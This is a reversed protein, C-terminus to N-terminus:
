SSPASVGSQFKSATTKKAESPKNDANDVVDTQKGKSVAQAPKQESAAVVSSPKKSASLNHQSFDDKEASAKIVQIKASSGVTPPAIDLFTEPSYLTRDGVLQQITFLKKAEEWHIDEIINLGPSLELLGGSVYFSLTGTTPPVDYILKM